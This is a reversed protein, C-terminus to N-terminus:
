RAEEHEGFVDRFRRRYEEELVPWFDEVGMERFLPYLFETAYLSTGDGWCRVGTLWCQEAFPEKGEMYSPCETYHSELGAIVDGPLGESFHFDVAMKPGVVCYRRGHSNPLDVVRRELISM